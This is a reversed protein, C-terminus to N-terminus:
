PWTLAFLVSDELTSFYWAIRYYGTDSSALKTFSWYWEQMYQGVHEECWLKRDRLEPNDVLPRIVVYKM